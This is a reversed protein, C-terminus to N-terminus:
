RRATRLLTSPSAKMGLREVLRTGAEGGLALDVLLLIEELRMTKRAYPEVVQPLREAFIQRPCRPAIRRELSPVARTHKYSRGENKGKNM